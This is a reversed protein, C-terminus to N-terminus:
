SSLNFTTDDSHDLLGYSKFSPFPHFSFLCTSSVKRFCLYLGFFEQLMSGRENENMIFNSFVEM